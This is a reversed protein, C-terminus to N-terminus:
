SPRGPMLIRELEKNEAEIGDKEEREELKAQWAKNQDVLRMNEHLFSNIILFFLVVVVLSGSIKLWRYKRTM